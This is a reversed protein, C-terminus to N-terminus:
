SNAVTKASILVADAWWYRAVLQTTTTFGADRLARTWEDIPQEFTYRPLTADLQGVLVPMLFNSIVEPHDEYERVGQEYRDALYAIHEASREAFAPVDFEVVVLRAARRALSRFLAPREVPNTAHLAFTSQVIDWATTAGLDALFASADTRHAVVEIGPRNVTAIARHLLAASPEVLEVRTTSAGLVSATVRGDGCGIDLVTRPEVDAHIDSLHHITQRYLDVNGGNDIFTEFARPEDYVGPARMNGLFRALAYALHSDPRQAGARRAAATATTWDGQALASLADILATIPIITDRLEGASSPGRLPPLNRTAPPRRYDIARHREVLASASARSTRM